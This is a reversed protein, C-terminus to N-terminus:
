KARRKKRPKAAAAKTRASGARRSKAAIAEFRFIRLRSVRANEKIQLRLAEVQLLAEIPAIRGRLFTPVHAAGARLLREEPELLAIEDERLEVSENFEVFYSGRGLDWWSYRDETRRRQAAIAIKGAPVYEGGGFDVQGMPVGDHVHIETVRGPVGLCM